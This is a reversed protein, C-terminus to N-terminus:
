RADNIFSHIFSPHTRVMLGNSNLYARKFQWAGDFPMLHISSLSWLHMRDNENENNIVMVDVIIHSISHLFHLSYHCVGETKVEYGRFVKLLARLLADHAELGKNMGTPATEWLKTSNQVDTFVFTVEGVPAEENFSATYQELSVVKKKKVESGGKRPKRLTKEIADIWALMSDSTDAALAYLRERHSITFRHAFGSDTTFGGSICEAKPITSEVQQNAHVGAGASITM